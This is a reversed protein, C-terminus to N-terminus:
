SSVKLAEARDSRRAALVGLYGHYDINDPSEKVLEEFTKRAEDFQRALYLTQGL